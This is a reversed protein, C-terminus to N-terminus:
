KYAECYFDQIETGAWNGDQVKLTFELHDNCRYAYNTFMWNGGERDLSHGYRHPDAYCEELMEELLRYATDVGIWRELDEYCSISCDYEVHTYQFYYHWLKINDFLINKYPKVRQLIKKYYNVKM